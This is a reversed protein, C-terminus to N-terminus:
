VPRGVLDKGLGIVLYGSGVFKCERMSIGARHAGPAFIVGHQSRVVDMVDGETFGRDAAATVVLVLDVREEVVHLGGKAGKILADRVEFATRRGSM